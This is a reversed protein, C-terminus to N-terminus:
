WAGAAEAAALRQLAQGYSAVGAPQGRARLFRDYMWWAADALPGRASRAYAALASLDAAAEEPIPAAARASSPLASWAGLAAAYRADPHASRLGALWGLAGADGEHAFGALHALEHGGVAVEAWDPLGRDVHAELTWPSIVGGVGWPALVWGPLRDVRRPIRVGPVLTGLEDAIAATAGDVDVARAPRDRRLTDALRSALRAMAADQADAPVGAALPGSDWGLRIPAEDRGAHAGWGLQFSAVVILVLGTWAPVARRLSGAALGLALVAATWLAALAPTWPLPGRETVPVVGHTLAPYTTEAWAARAAPWASTLLALLAAALGIAVLLRSM